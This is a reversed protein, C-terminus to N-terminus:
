DGGHPDEFSSYPALRPGVSANETVTLGAAIGVTSRLTIADSGEHRMALPTSPDIGESLLKRAASLFPTRASNLITRDDLRVDYRGKSAPTVTIIM